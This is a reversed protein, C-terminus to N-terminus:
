QFGSVTTYVSVPTFDLNVVVASWEFKTTHPPLTPTDGFVITVSNGNPEGRFQGPRSETRFVARILYPTKDASCSYYAGTYAKAEAASLKRFGSAPLDRISSWDMKSAGVEYVDEKPLIKWSPSTRLVRIKFLDSFKSAIELVM